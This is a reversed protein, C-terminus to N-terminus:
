YNIKLKQKINTMHNKLEKKLLKPNSLEDENLGCTNLLKQNDELGLKFIFNDFNRKAETPDNKYQEAFYMGILSGYAYIFKERIDFKIEVRKRPNLESSLDEIIDTMVNYEMFFQDNLKMENMKPHTFFRIGIFHNLLDNYLENYAFLTDYDCFKNKLSYDLFLKEFYMSPVELYNTYLYNTSQQPNKDYIMNNHIAHAFEHVIVSLGLIDFYVIDCITYSKKLKSIRYCVAQYGCYIPKIAFHKSDIMNKILKYTKHDYKNFFDYIIDLAEKKNFEYCSDRNFFQFCTDKYIKLINKSSNQYYSYMHNLDNYYNDKIKRFYQLQEDRVVEELVDKYDTLTNYVEYLPLLSNQIRIKKSYSNAKELKWELMKIEQLVTKADINM